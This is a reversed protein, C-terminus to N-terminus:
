RRLGKHGVSDVFLVITAPRNRDQSQSDSLGRRRRFRRDERLARASEEGQDQAERSPLIFPEEPGSEGESRVAGLIRLSQGRDHAPVKSTLGHWSVFGALCGQGTESSAGQPGFWTVV